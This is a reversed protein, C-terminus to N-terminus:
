AIVRLPRHGGHQRNWRERKVQEWVDLQADDRPKGTAISYLDVCAHAYGKAEAKRVVDTEALNLFTDYADVCADFLTKTNM